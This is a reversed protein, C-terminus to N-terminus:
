EKKPQNTRTFSAAQLKWAGAEQRLVHLFNGNFQTSGGDKSPITVTYPGVVWAMQNDVEIRDIKHEFKVGVKLENAITEDRQAKDAVGGVSIDIADARWVETAGRLDGSNIAKFFQDSTAGVADSAGQAFAPVASMASVAIWAASFLARM